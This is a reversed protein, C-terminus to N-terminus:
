EEKTLTERGGCATAPGHFLHIWGSLSRPNRCVHIPTPKPFTIALGRGGNIQASPNTCTVGDRHRCDLCIGMVGPMPQHPALLKYLRPHPEILSETCPRCLVVVRPEPRDNDDCELWRDLLALDTPALGCSQCQNPHKPGALSESLRKM